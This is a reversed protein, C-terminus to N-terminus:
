IHGRGVRVRSRYGHIRGQKKAHQIFVIVCCSFSAYLLPFFLFSPFLSHFVCFFFCPSFCCSFLSLLLALCFSSLSLCFLFLSFLSLNSKVTGSAQLNFSVGNEILKDLLPKMQKENSKDAHSFFSPLFLIKDNEYSM